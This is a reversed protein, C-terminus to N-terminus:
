PNHNPMHRLQFELSIDLDIGRGIRERISPWKKKKKKLASARAETRVSALQRVEETRSKNEIM